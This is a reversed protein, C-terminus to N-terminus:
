TAAFHALLGVAPRYFYKLGIGPGVFKLLVTSLVTDLVEGSGQLASAGVRPTVGTVCEPSPCCSPSLLVYIVCIRGGIM